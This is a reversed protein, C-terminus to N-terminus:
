SFYLMYRFFNPTECSNHITPLLRTTTIYITSSDSFKILSCLTVPVRRSGLNHSRAIHLWHIQCIQRGMSMIVIIVITESAFFNCGKTPCAATRMIASGLTRPNDNAAWKEGMRKREKKGKSRGRM